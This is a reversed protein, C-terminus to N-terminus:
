CACINGHKCFASGGVIRADAGRRATSVSVLGEVTRAIASTRAMSVFGSGGCDKCFRKRKGHTSVSVLGKVSTGQM